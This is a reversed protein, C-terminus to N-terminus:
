KALLKLVKNKDVAGIMAVRMEKLNFFQHAIKQVQEKTVMQLKKIEDEPTNIKTHFLFQKAYIEAQTSCDEISLTIRGAINTKANALEATTVPENAIRALEAKIVTLAEGLRSPDLGAQIHELGVDRFSASSARIMYALGRKERVEVFLRSSMGSGLINQMISSAYRDPHESPLGPFGLMLHAQDLKKEEVLLRDKLSPTKKPWQFHKFEKKYFELPHAVGPAQQKGFYMAVDREMKKTVAGSIVLVMNKPSYHAQYYHYLDGRSVGRVTKETGGIDWGLSMNGFSLREFLNDIHMNPNDNYMRLEEVIAGKEKEVEEKKFVSNYIIDSLVDLAIEYESAACKVYYGTYDKSTFANFEAGIADLGRSIDTAEPRKTTGKFLMHEVFHSAGSLKATEFRSGVPFMAMVTTAKTGAVPVVIQTIGNKLKSLRYM